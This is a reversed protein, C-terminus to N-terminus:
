NTRVTALDLATTAGSPDSTAGHVTTFSFPLKIVFNTPGNLVLQGGSDSPAPTSTAATTSAPAPTSQSGGPTTAVTAPTQADATPSGNTDSSSSAAAPDGCAVLLLLALLAGCLLGLRRTQRLHLARRSKKAQFIPFEGM